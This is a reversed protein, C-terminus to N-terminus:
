SCGCTTYTNRTRSHVSMLSKLQASCRVATCGPCARVQDKLKAPWEPKAKRLDIFKDVVQEEWRNDLLFQILACMNEVSDRAGYGDLKLYSIDGTVASPLSASRTQEYLAECIRRSLPILFLRWKM